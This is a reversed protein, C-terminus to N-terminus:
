GVFDFIRAIKARRILSYYLGFKQKKILVRGLARFTV